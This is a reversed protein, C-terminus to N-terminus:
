EKTVYGIIDRRQADVIKDDRMKREEQPPLPSTLPPTSPGVPTVRLRDSAGSGQCPIVLFKCPSLAPCVGVRDEQTKAMPSAAVELGHGVSCPVIPCGFTVM